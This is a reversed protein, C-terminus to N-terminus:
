VLYDPQAKEQALSGAISAHFIIGRKGLGGQISLTLPPQTDKSTLFDAIAHVYPAFGLFDNPSALDNVVSINAPQNIEEDSKNIM